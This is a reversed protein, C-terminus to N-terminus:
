AKAATKAEDVKKLAADYTSQANRVGNVYNEVMTRYVAADYVTDNKNYSNWENFFEQSFGHSYKNAGYGSYAM